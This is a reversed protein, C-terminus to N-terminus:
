VDVKGEKEMNHPAEEKLFDLLDLMDYSFQIEGHDEEANLGTLRTDIKKRMEGLMKELPYVSDLSLKANIENRTPAPLRDVAESFSAPNKILSSASEWDGEEILSNLVSEESGSSNEMINLMEIVVITTQVQLLGDDQSVDVGEVKINDFLKTFTEIRDSMTVEETSHFMFNYAGDIDNALVLDEVQEMLTLLESTQSADSFKDKLVPMNSDIPIDDGEAFDSAEVESSNQLEEYAKKLRLVLRTSKLQMMADDASPDVGTEVIDDYLLGMIDAKAKYSLDGSGDYLFTFAADASQTKLLKTADDVLVSLRAADGIASIFHGM